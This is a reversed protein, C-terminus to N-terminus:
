RADAAGAPPPSAGDFDLGGQTAEARAVIGAVRPGSIDGIIARRGEADCAELMSGSGGFPDWVTGGPPTTVRVLARLLDVPKETPHTRQSTHVRKTRIVNGVSRDHYDGTGKTFHLVMEHQPRFGTGMGMHGKDWAIMNVWRLGSSEIAPALTPLMRWDCFMALSGGEVLVRHAEIAVARLLWALGATTMNDGIFWGGSETVTEGSRIGQVAARCRGAETTGGSCYPPDTIVAHVSEDDLHVGQLADGAYIRHDRIAVIETM